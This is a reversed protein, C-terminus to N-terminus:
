KMGELTEIVEDRAGSDIFWDTTTTIIEPYYTVLIIGVVIGFIFKFM